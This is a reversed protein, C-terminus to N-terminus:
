LRALNGPDARRLRLRAVVAVHDSPQGPGPLPTDDIVEPVPLPDSELAEDHFIFDIWKARGNPNCTAGQACSAHSSSFGAADLAGVVASPRTVNFDGCIIWASGRPALSARRGLLERIQRFGYQRDPAAEPASWRLHTNAVVLDGEGVRLHLIQAVHGSRPADPAADDYELRDAGLV